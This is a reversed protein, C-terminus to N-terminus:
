DIFKVILCSFLLLFLENASIKDIDSELIQKIKDLRYILTNRHVHLEKATTTTNRGNLLYVSITEVLEKGREDEQRYLQLIKPHCLSKTSTSIELISIIHEMYRASFAYINQSQFVFQDELSAKAQIFAYKLEMFNDFEMGLGCLMDTNRLFKNLEMLMPNEDSLPKANHVVAIIGNEYPVTYSDKIIQKIRYAFKAKLGNSIKTKDRKVFYMFGYHDSMKWNVRGLHYTVTNEDIPFGQLLRDIYYNVGDAMHLYQDSRKFAIEMQNKLIYFISLQGLTFPKCIDSSALIAFPENKDFLSVVMDMENNYVESPQFWFPIKTNKIKKNMEMQENGSYNDIVSYGKSLVVGWISEEIDDPIKGAKMILALSNDFIAVPNKLFQSGFDLIDQLPEKCAIMQMMKYNWQEYKEFVSQVLAFADYIHISTPLSIMQLDSALLHQPPAEAQFTIVNVNHLSELDKLNGNKIIYIYQDSLTSLDSPLMRVGALCLAVDDKATIRANPINLEEFIIHINIM